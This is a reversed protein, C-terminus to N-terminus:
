CKRLVLLDAHILQDLGGSEIIAVFQQRAFLMLLLPATSKGCHNRFLPIKQLGDIFPPHRASPIATPQQNAVAMRINNGSLQLGFIVLMERQELHESHRTHHSGLLRHGKKMELIREKRHARVAQMRSALGHM